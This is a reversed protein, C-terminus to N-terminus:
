VIKYKCSIFDELYMCLITLQLFSNNQVPAGLTLTWSKLDKGGAYTYIGFQIVVGVVTLLRFCLLSKRVVIVVARKIINKLKLFFIPMLRVSTLKPAWHIHICARCSWSEVSCASSCRSHAYSLCRCWTHFSFRRYQGVDFSDLRVQGSSVQGSSDLSLLIIQQLLIQFFQQWNYPGSFHIM